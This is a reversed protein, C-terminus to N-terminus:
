EIIKKIFEKNRNSGELFKGNIASSLSFSPTLKPISNSLIGKPGPFNEDKETKRIVSKTMQLQIM